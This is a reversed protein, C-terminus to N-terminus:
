PRRRALRTIEERRYAKTPVTGKSRANFYDWWVYAFFGFVSFAPFARIAESLPVPDGRFYGRKGAWTWLVMVVAGAAAVYLGFRLRQHWADSRM